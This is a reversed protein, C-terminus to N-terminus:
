IATPNIELTLDDFAPWGTQKRAQEFADEGRFGVTLTTLYSGRLFSVGGIPEADFGWTKMAADPENRGHILQLILSNTEM